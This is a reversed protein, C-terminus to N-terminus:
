SDDTTEKLSNIASELTAIYLEAEWIRKEYDVIKEESREIFRREIEINSKYGTIADKWGKVGYALTEIAPNM